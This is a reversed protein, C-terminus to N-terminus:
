AAAGREQARAKKLEDEFARLSQLDDRMAGSPDRLIHLAIEKAIKGKHGGLCVRSLARLRELDERAARIARGRRQREAEGNEERAEALWYLAWLLRREGAGEIARLKDLGVLETVLPGNGRQVASTRISSDFPFDELTLRSERELKQALVDIPERGGATPALHFPKPEAM